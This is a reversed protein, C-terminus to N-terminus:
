RPTIDVPPTTGTTIEFSKVASDEVAASGPYWITNENADTMWQGAQHRKGDRTIVYLGCTTGVPIGVVKADLQLGCGMRRYAVTADQGTANTGTVQMWPGMPKGHSRTSAVPASPKATLYHVGTFAGAVIIAAAAAALLVNRWSKGRRRAATLDLVTGLLEPSARARPEAPPITEDVGLQLVEEATVRALLAPLGALSVLEDRCEQCTALHADILAREAPDIGGLVYVGLSIRADGCEM